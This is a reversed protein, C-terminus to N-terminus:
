NITKSENNLVKKFINWVMDENILDMCANTKLPCKRKYCPACSLNTNLSLNIYNIPATRIKSTPGFLSIYPTLVASCIHAPGSDPGFALKAFKLTSTLKSLDTKNILSKIRKDKFKELILDGLELDQFTGLLHIELDSKNLIREIISFYTKNKINKSEWSSSLIIALYEQNINLPEVKDLSSCKNLDNIKDINLYNLFEKYHDLKNTSLEEKYCIFNNNFLFNFEKSNNKAFGVRKKAFSFLSFIGSKLNRQLDFCIDFKESKLEKLVTIFGSAGNKRHFVIRKDIFSSLNLIDKWKDEILWTIEIENSSNKIIKALELGRVVDGLAGTLVILLKTM